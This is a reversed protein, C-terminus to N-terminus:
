AQGGEDKLLSHRAAWVAAQVRDSVGIKNIIHEIHSKVTPESVFLVSAIEHNKLGTALLRLVELERDTLPKPLDETQRIRDSISRLSNSLDHASLLTEGQVVARLTKLLDARTVGKLLYGAAGGAVARAMFTPNEYTTLMVVVMRPHERKLHHLTELGDMGAMRIDLLVLRPQTQRALELAAAGSAAEAVIHFETRDLMARVGGLSIAHDDVLM